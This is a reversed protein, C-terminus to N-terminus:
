KVSNYFKYFIDKKLNLRKMAEVKTIKKEQILKLIEEWNEPKKIRPRGYPNGTKTKGTKKWTEIGQKQDLRRQEYDSETEYNLVALIIDSILTGLLDKHITTNIIPTNIAIIDAGINKTIEKFQEENEKYNRGFRKLDIIYLTDGARLTEKLANYKPRDYNRGTQKDIYIHREDIGLKKFEEIQRAENQEKTSVRAYAFKISPSKKEEIHKM